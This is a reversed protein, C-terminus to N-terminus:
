GNAGALLEANRGQGSVIIVDRNESAERLADALSDIADPTIGFLNPFILQVVGQEQVGAGGSSPAPDNAADGGSFEGAGFGGGGGLGGLGGGGGIAGVGTLATAAILGVQAAGFAQIAAAAPPGAIPGLEALAKVSAAATNQVTRAIALGKEVLFLARAVTKNKGVLVQLIQVSTQATAQRLRITQQASRAELKGQAILARQEQRAEGLRIRRFARARDLEGEIFAATEESQKEIRAEFAEQASEREKELAVIRAEEVQAAKQDQLKQEATLIINARREQEETVLDLREQVAQRELEFQEKQWEVLRIRRIETESATEQDVALTHQTLRSNLFQQERAELEAFDDESVIVRVALEIDSLGRVNNQLIGLQEFLLAMAPIFDRRLTVVFGALGENAEKMGPAFRRALDFGLGKVSEQLDTFADNAEEISAADVASIATGFRKTREEAEEFAASGAELTRLLAAGRGGFLEYAALVKESQTNLGKMAEAIMLFQEDPSQQSLAKAELGLKKLTDTALGTGEAAEAVVRTVNILSKELTKQEIGTKAAVLQFAALKETTIGLLQSQKALADIQKLSARTLLALGAVGGALGVAAFRGLNKNVARFASKTRDRATLVIEAQNRRAM